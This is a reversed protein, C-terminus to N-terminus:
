DHRNFRNVPLYFDQKGGAEISWKGDDSIATIIPKDAVLRLTGWDSRVFRFSVPVIIRKSEMGKISTAHAEVFERVEATLCLEKDETQGGKGKVPVSVTTRYTDIRPLGNFGTEVKRTHVMAAGGISQPSREANREAKGTEVKDLVKATEAIDQSETITEGGAVPSRGQLLAVITSLGQSLEAIAQGQAAVQEKLAKTM